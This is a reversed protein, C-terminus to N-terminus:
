PGTAHRCVFLAAETGMAARAKRSSKNKPAIM